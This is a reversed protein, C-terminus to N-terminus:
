ALQATGTSDGLADLKAGVKEAIGRHLNCLPTNAAHAIVRGGKLGLASGGAVLIPLDAHNHMNGDTIAGGYLIVTTDLVSRSGEKCADLARLLAAFRESHFTTIRTFAEMKAPDNGHHSVDHHGQTVGVEAYPRNSGENALMFTAVRTSETQLALALVQSLLDTRRALDLPGGAFEPIQDADLQSAADEAV